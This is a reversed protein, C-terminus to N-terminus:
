CQCFERLQEQSFPWALEQNKDNVLLPVRVHYKIRLKENLDIDIFIYDIDLIRLSDEVDECLPCDNRSYLKM